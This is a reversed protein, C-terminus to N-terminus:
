SNYNYIHKELVKEKDEKANKYDRAANTAELETTRYQPGTTGLLFQKKCCIRCKRSGIQQM